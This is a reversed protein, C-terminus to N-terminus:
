HWAPRKYFPLAIMSAPEATGRVDVALRGQGDGGAARAAAAVNAAVYAMAIPQGLTPSPVGSTVLGCRVGDWLV